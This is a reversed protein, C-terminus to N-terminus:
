RESRESLNDAEHGKPTGPNQSSGMDDGKNSTNM